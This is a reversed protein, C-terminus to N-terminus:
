AKVPIVYRGERVTIISDQLYKKYSQSNVIENLKVRIAENKNAIQKRISRLSPSANDSIENESVIANDIEGEIHRYVSLNEVLAEIIPYNSAKDEKTERIYSKLARSARLSDAIKLLSG